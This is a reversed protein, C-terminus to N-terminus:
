IMHFSSISTPISKIGTVAKINAQDVTQTTISGNSAEKRPLFNAIQRLRNFKINAITIDIRVTNVKFIKYIFFYIKGISTNNAYM